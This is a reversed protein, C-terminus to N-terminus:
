QDYILLYYISVFCLDVLHQYFQNNPLGSFVIITIICNIQIAGSDITNSEPVKFFIVTTYLDSLQTDATLADSFIM